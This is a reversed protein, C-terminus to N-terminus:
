TPPVSATRHASGDAPGSPMERWTPREFMVKERTSPAALRWAV